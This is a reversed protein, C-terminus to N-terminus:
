TGPSVLTLARAIYPIALILILLVLIVLSIALVLGGAIRPRGIKRAFGEVGEKMIFGGDFPVMPLANFTGVMFNFWGCWFFFHVLGWFLPFPTRFFAEEPSFVLIPHLQPVQNYLIDVPLYALLLLGGPSGLNRLVGVVQDTKYYSVGMFGSTRDPASTLNFTYTTGPPLPGGAPTSRVEEAPLVTLSITDGPKTGALINSIEGISSVPQGNVERIV